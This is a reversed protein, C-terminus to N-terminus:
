ATKRTGWRQQAAQRTIGAADGIRAWSEGEANLKAVGEALVHEFETILDIAVGIDEVNGESIRRGCAKICRRMMGFYSENEVEDRLHVYARKGKGCGEARCNRNHVNGGDDFHHRTQM